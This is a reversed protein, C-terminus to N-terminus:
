RTALRRALRQRRRRARDAEVDRRASEWVAKITDPDTLDRLVAVRPSAVRVKGVAEYVPQTM